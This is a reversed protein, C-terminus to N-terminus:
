QAGRRRLVDGGGKLFGLGYGIIQVCSALVSLGAVRGSGTQRWADAFLIAAGLVLPVLLMPWGALAGVLLVAGGLTGVTPLVHVGKLSGPHDQWVHLRARGSQFVQRFFARFDSRRKHYVFAGEILRTTFGAEQLRLSLVLDEGYIGMDPFGGVADFATADIGMNFSRPKFTGVQRGGGRIGGTTLFSTMAYNIAKQTPTFSPHTRDPGGYADAPDERLAGRVTEIYDPPVLCDSDFFIYYTGTAQETGYNRTPGPGTNEKHFYRVDLTEDFARVAEECPDESGDDVVVVEFQSDTQRALSELLERVENPRNYVPVIVSFQPDRPAM